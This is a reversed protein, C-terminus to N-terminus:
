LATEVESRVSQIRSILADLKKALESFDSGSGAATGADKVAKELEKKLDTMALVAQTTADVVRRAKELRISATEDRNAATRNDIKKRLTALETTRNVISAVREQITALLLADSAERAVRDMLDYESSIPDSPTSPPNKIIFKTLRDSVELRADIDDKAAVDRAAALLEDLKNRWGALDQINDFESPM